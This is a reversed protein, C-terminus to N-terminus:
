ELLNFKKFLHSPPNKSEIEEAKEEVDWKASKHNRALNTSDTSAFPFLHAKSAARLMHINPTFSRKSHIFDWTTSVKKFWAESRIDWFEGSSGFCIRPYNDLLYLLYDTSLHLHWVPASLEKPFPWRSLMERQESEDGGIKDLCVAWHPHFLNPWLWDYLASEDTPKGRTFQMFAGNDLMVSAGIKMCVQLDRPDGHSVCFHKGGLRLLQARPTLPTGHYHIM